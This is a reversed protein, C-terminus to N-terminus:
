SSPKLDFDDAVSLSSFPSPSTLLAFLAFGALEVCVCMNEPRLPSSCSYNREQLHTKELSKKEQANISVWPKSLPSQGLRSAHHNQNQAALIGSSSSRVNFPIELMAPVKVHRLCWRKARRCSEAPGSHLFNSMWSIRSIHTMNDELTALIVLSQWQGRLKPLKTSVNAVDISPDCRGARVPSMDRRDGSYGGDGCTSKVGCNHGSQPKAM